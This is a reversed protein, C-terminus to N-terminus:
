DMSDHKTNKSIYAWAGKAGATKRKSLGQPAAGSVRRPSACDPLARREVLLGTFFVIQIGTCGKSFGPNASLFLKSNRGGLKTQSGKLKSQAEEKNPNAERSNITM